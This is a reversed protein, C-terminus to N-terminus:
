RTDDSDALPNTDNSNKDIPEHSIAPIPDAAVTAAYNLMGQGLATSSLVTLYNNITVSVQSDQPKAVPDIQDLYDLLGRAARLQTDESQASRALRQMKSVQVRRIAGANRLLWGRYEENTIKGPKVSEGYFFVSTNPM